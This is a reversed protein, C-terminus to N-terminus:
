DEAGRQRDKGVYRVDQVVKGLWDRDAPSVGADTVVHRIVDWGAFRVFSQRRFKRSDVVLATDRAVEIMAESVRAIPLDTTYLGREDVADAGLIALQVRFRRLNDETLAGFLDPSNRGVNGGLLVIEMGPDTHLESAVALSSTLVTLRGVGRLARAVELTTTGTDMVLTM